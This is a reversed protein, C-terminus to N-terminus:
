QPRYLDGHTIRGEEDLGMWDVAYRGPIRVKGSLTYTTRRHGRPWSPAHVAAWIGSRFPPELVVPELSNVAVLPSQLAVIQNDSTAVYIIEHQLRKPVARINVGLEIFIIARGGPRIATNPLKSDRLISGGVLVFRNALDSGDFSAIAEGSDPNIVRLKRVLLPENAFNTLHLEYILAVHGESLVPIPAQPVLVDFSERQTEASLPGIAMLGILTTQLWRRM